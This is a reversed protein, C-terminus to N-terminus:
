YGKESILWLHTNINKYRTLDSKIRWLLVLNDEVKGLEKSFSRKSQFYNRKEWRMGRSNKGGSLVNFPAAMSFNCSQLSEKNVDEPLAGPHATLEAGMRRPQRWQRKTNKKHIFSDLRLACRLLEPFLRVSMKDGSDRRILLYIIM